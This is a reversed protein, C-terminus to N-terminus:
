IMTPFVRQKIEPWESRLMSFYASDRRQGQWNMHSRLVGEPVLGLRMMSAKAHDNLVNTKLEVREMKMIEFAYSFLAFKASRNVGTGMYERGLWTWGIELRQEEFAINLFSTSGCIKKDDMDIVTFPVRREEEYEKLSTEVWSKMERSDSYDKNYYTWIEKPAALALLADYDDAKMIRMMVRPTELVFSPPFFKKFLSPQQM